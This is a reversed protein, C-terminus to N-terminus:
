VSPTAPPFPAGPHPPAGQRRRTGGHVAFWLGAWVKPDVLVGEAERALLWGGVDALPVEWVDIREGAVGGGRGRRVLGRARFFTLVESSVGASPPGATLREVERAEWGTEELLERRAAEELPEDASGAEDGCLGAPLEVVRADVPPRHQEVLVLRADDTVAVVVAIGTVGPRDVYEWGEREVFALHRGRHLLRKESVRDGM